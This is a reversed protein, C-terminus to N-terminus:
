LLLLILGISEINLSGLLNVVGKYGIAILMELDLDDVSEGLIDRVRYYSHHNLYIYALSAM